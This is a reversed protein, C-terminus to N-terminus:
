PMSWLPLAMLSELSRMGGSRWVTTSLTAPLPATDGVLGRPTCVRKSGLLPLGSLSAAQYTGVGGGGEAAGEGQERTRALRGETNRSGEGMTFGAGGGDWAPMRTSCAGVGRPQLGAGDREECARLVLPAHTIGSRGGRGRVTGITAKM